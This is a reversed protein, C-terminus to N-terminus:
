GAMAEGIRQGAAELDMDLLWELVKSEHVRYHQSLVDIIQDDAPRPAKAPAQRATPFPRVTGTSVPGLSSVALPAAPETAVIKAVSSVVGATQPQEAAPQSAQQAAQQAAADREAQARAEAAAREDAERQLQENKKREEALKHASIRSDVLSKFDDAAKLVIVKFDAFLFAYDTANEQAYKMNAQIADAIASAKIKGNALVQACADRLSTLTKKSKMATAFDVPVAPMYPKGLRANLGELHDAMAKAFEQQIELKVTEKRAKVLKETALRTASSLAKLEAVVRRLADVNTLQALANNEALQLAKEAKELNKVAAEADAFEQDTAPKAPIQKIYERLALAFAPLNDTVTLAGEFRVQVAPLSPQLTAVPAPLVEVHQYAELDKHFQQWGEMLQKARGPVARYEMHVFKEPTGDSCVFIVKELGGVLIQQELQWYYHPELEGARVQAALDENYLKHEFGTTEDMTLGDYSALLTAGDSAVVPYLEEGIMDEVIVRALAETAHGRDFLAQKARDVPPTHGTAKQRLLEQRTMYKSVGMMAPAESATDFQTRLDLWEQSGPVVDHIHM